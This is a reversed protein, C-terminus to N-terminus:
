IREYLVYFVRESVEASSVKVRLQRGKLSKFLENNLPILANATFNPSYTGFEDAIPHWTGDVDIELGFDTNTLAAPCIISVPYVGASDWTINSATSTTGAASITLPSKM